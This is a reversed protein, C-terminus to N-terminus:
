ATGTMGVATRERRRQGRRAARAGGGSRSATSAAARRMAEAEALTTRGRIGPQHGVLRDLDPGNRQDLTRAM